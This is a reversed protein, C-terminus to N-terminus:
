SEIENNKLLYPPYMTEKQVVNNLYESPTMGVVAKFTKSFAHISSFGSKEAAETINCQGLTLMQQAKEIKVNIIYKHLSIGLYNGFVNTLYNPTVGIAYSITDNDLDENMYHSNIYAIANEIHIWSKTKKIINDAKRKELDKMGNRMTMVLLFTSYAKLMVGRCEEGETFEKYMNLYIKKLEYREIEGFSTIMSQDGILKEKESIEFDIGVGLVDKHQMLHSDPREFFDFHFILQVLPETGLSKVIHTKLPPIIIADGIGCVYRSGDIIFEAAGQAIYTFVNDIDRWKGSMAVAKKIRMMRVYPTIDKFDQLEM